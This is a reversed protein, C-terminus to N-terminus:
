RYLPINNEYMLLMRRGIAFVVGIVTKQLIM